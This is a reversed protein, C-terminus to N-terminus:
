LISKGCITRQTSVNTGQFFLTAYNTHATLDFPQMAHALDSIMRRLCAQRRVHIDESTQGREESLHFNVHHWHPHTPQPQAQWFEQMNVTGTELWDCLRATKSPILVYSNAFRRAGLLKFITDKKCLSPVASKSMVGYARRSTVGLWICESSPALLELVRLIVM